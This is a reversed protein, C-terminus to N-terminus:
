RLPLRWQATTGRLAIECAGTAAQCRLVDHAYRGTRMQILLADNSEWGVYGFAGPPFRMRVTKGTAPDLVWETTKTAKLVFQGTGDAPFEMLTADPSWAGLAWPISGTRHFGGHDDVTGYMGPADNFSAGQGQLVIGTATVRDPQPPLHGLGTVTHATNTRTDWVVLADGTGYFAQGADDVGFLMLVPGGCCVQQVRVDKWALVRGSAPDWAVVRTVRPHVEEWVVLRGDASLQPSVVSAPIPARRAEGNTVQWWAYTGEPAHRQGILVTNGAAYVDAAQTPVAGQSTYLTGDHWYPVAPAAGAQLPDYQPSPTVPHSARGHHLPQVPTSSRLTTAGWGLGAIVAFTAAVATVITARRRRLQRRGASTLTALPAPPVELDTAVRRLDEALRHQLDSM